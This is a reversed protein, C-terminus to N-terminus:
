SFAQRYSQIGFLALSNGEVIISDCCDRMTNDIERGFIPLLLGLLILRLVEWGKLKKEKVYWRKELRAQEDRLYDLVM